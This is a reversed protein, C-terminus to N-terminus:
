PVTYDEGSTENQVETGSPLNLQLDDPRVVANLCFKPSYTTERRFEQVGTPSRVVYTHKAPGWVGGRYLRMETESSQVLIKGPLGEGEGWLERRPITYGKNPDIWLYDTAKIKRNGQATPFTYQVVFCESSAISERRDVRLAARQDPAKPIRFRMVGKDLVGADSLYLWHYIAANGKPDPDGIYAVQHDVDFATARSGDFSAKWQTVKGPQEMAAKASETADRAPDNRLLTQRASVLCKDGDFVVFCVKEIERISGDDSQGVTRVTVNVRGTKISSAAKECGQAIRLLDKPDTRGDVASRDSSTMTIAGMVVLAVVVVLFAAIRPKM